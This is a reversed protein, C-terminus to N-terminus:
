LVCKQTIKRERYNKIGGWWLNETETETQTDTQRDWARHPEAKFNGGGLNKKNKKLSVGTQRKKWKM